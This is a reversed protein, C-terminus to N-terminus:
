KIHQPAESGEPQVSSIIRYENDSIFEINESIVSMNIFSFTDNTKEIVCFPIKGIFVSDLLRVDSNRKAKVKFQYALLPVNVYREKKCKRGTPYKDGVHFLKKGTTAGISFHISLMELKPMLNHNRLTFEYAQGM